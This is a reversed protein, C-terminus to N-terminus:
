APRSHQQWSLAALGLFAFAALMATSPEPVRVFALGSLGSALGTSGVLTLTGTGTDLTYLNNTGNTGGDAVYAVDAVPHFTMGVTFGLHVNLPVTTLIAGTSPNLTDLLTNGTLNDDDIAYLTGAANFALSSFDHPAGTSVSGVTTAAGTSPNMTFLNHVSGSLVNEIGYLAGTSPQFALDGEFINSLGTAGVLSVAGSPVDIKLLSNAFPASAFTTLGFM